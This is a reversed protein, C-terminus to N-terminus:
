KNPVYARAVQSNSANNEIIKCEEEKSVSGESILGQGIQRKSEERLLDSPMQPSIIAAEIFNSQSRM